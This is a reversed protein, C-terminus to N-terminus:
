FAITRSTSRFSRFPHNGVRKRPPQVPKLLRCLVDSHKQGNDGARLLEMQAYAGKADGDAALKCDFDGMDTDKHRQRERWLLIEAPLKAEDTQVVIRNGM